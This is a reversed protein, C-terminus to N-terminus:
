SALIRRAAATYEPEFEGKGREGGCRRGVGGSLCCERRGGPCDALSARQNEEYHVIDEHIAVDGARDEGRGPVLDGGHLATRLGDSRHRRLIEIDHEHVHAHRLHVPQFGGPADAGQFPRPRAHRYQGQGCLGEGVLDGLAAGGAHIAMQDFGEIRVRQQGGHHPSGRRAVLGAGRGGGRRRWDALVQRHEVCRQEVAGGGKQLRRFDGTVHLRNRQGALRQRRGETRRVGQWPLGAGQRLLRMGQRGAGAHQTEGADSGQPAPEFVRHLRAGRFDRGERLAEGGGQVSRQLIDPAAAVRALGLRIGDQRLGRRQRAGIRRLRSLVAIPAIRRDGHKGGRRRGMLRGVEGRPLQWALAERRYREDQAPGDSGEADLLRAALAHEFFAKALDQKNAAEYIEALRQHCSGRSSVALKAADTVLCDLSGGPGAPAPGPPLAYQARLASDLGRSSTARIFAADNRGLYNPADWIRARFDDSAIVIRSGDPSFAADRVIGGPAPLVALPAGTAADWTRVTEDDSATVIRRGDPSYAAARVGAKHGSLTLLRAGTAADFIAATGDASATLIHAGDPSFRVRYVDARDAPIVLRTAGTAADWIRASGDFSGTVIRHQDPSFHASRVWNTHGRLTVLTRGSAADLVRAVTDNGSALVRLGDPSFSASYAVPTAVPLSQMAQGSAADWIRVSGDLSATVVRRGDASFGADLVAGQHGALTQLVGGSAADWIRATSDYSATLVRTGDPSFSARSVYATHGGLTRAHASASVDWVRATKDLSATVLRQGDPSFDVSAITDQHGALVQLLEGTGADWLRATKDTSATAIRRGDPSYQAFSLGNQHGRITLLVAGTAADWVQATKDNSATLIRRGDPSFVATMVFNDHGALTRVLAGTATDWIKATKDISATVVQSGDPSFSAFSLGAHHGVLSHLQAGTGADWVRATQDDSVSVIRRGDNSFVASTVTGEHGRLTLLPKGTAAAWIIITKDDSGTVIRSGDHSYAVTEVVDAHGALTLKLAGTAADWIRAKHDISATVVSRGDPSYAADLAANGHGAIVMRQSKANAALVLRDLLHAETQGGAGQPLASIAVAEVTTPDPEDQLALALVQARRAEALAFQGQLANRSSEVAAKESFGFWAGFAAAVTLTSLSAFAGLVVRQRRHRARAAAHGSAQIFGSLDADLAGEPRRLLEMGEALRRGPPLLLDAQRGSRNWRAMDERLRAMVALLDRSEEILATLRPWSRLLAEHALRVTAGQPTEDAILLRAEILRDLALCADPSRELEARRAVRAAALMDGEGITVLGLLLPPLVAGAAQPLAAVITEAHHSIAGELSGLGAYASFRLEGGERPRRWLADLAFSLLPLAGPDRAAAAVIVEDLRQGTAQDVEFRLGAARAPKGVIENLEAVSPPLLLYTRTNALEALSPLQELQGFFDARMTGIVWVLGSKALAALAAVLCDREQPSIHPVTFLEELQDVVLVLRAQGRATLKGSAAQGLGQRVAFAIQDPMQRLQAALTDAAYALGALEPLATSCLITQALARLIDGGLDSPRMIGYRVLGTDGLMGPLMLDPLLGARVLSSKGSGSAGVVLVFATGAAIGAALAERVERCARGRGFFIPAQALDFAALAPWPPGSWSIAGPEAPLDLDRQLRRLLLARLHGELLAEFEAATGFGHSAATFSERDPYKFWRDFFDGVLRKQLLLEGLMTEDALSAVVDANKQYVLLDPLGRERCSKLADEFEYETGTVERGSIVGRFHEAPLAFGLRSWLIVICVDTAGASPINGADQFHQSALLPEQEWLVPVLECHYAFERSLKRIIREAIAREPRVDSPSSVFIRYVRSTM